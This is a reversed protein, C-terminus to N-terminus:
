ISIFMWGTKNLKNFNLEKYIKELDKNDPLLVIYKLGINEQINKAISIVLEILYESIKVNDLEELILGRYKKSVFLFDIQLAPFDEMSTSSISILGLNENDKKLVYLVTKSKEVRKCIDKIFLIERNKQELSESLELSELLKKSFQYEATISNYKKIEIM